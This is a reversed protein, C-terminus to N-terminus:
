YNDIFDRAEQMSCAEWEPFRFGHGYAWEEKTYVMFIPRQTTIDLQEKIKFGKYTTTRGKPAKGPVTFGRFEATYTM